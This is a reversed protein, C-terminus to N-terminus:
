VLSYNDKQYSCPLHLVKPETSPSVGTENMNKNDGATLGERAM